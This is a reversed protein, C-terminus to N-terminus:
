TRRKKRPELRRWRIWLEEQGVGAVSRHQTIHRHDPDDKDFTQTAGACEWHKRKPQQRRGTHSHRECMSSSASCMVTTMTHTRAKSEKYARKGGLKGRARCRAAVSTSHPLSPTRRAAVASTSPATPVVGTAESIPSQVPLTRRAKSPPQTVEPSDTATSDSDTCDLTVGARQSKRTRGCDVVDDDETSDNHEPSPDLRVVELRGGFRVKHLFHFAQVSALVIREIMGHWLRQQIHLFKLLSEVHSPDIMCCIGVVLPFVHMVWGRDAYYRLTEVLSSYAHQKRMAAALLQAPSTDSPRCLDVIAIRKHTESVLVWDPQRRGLQDTTASSTPQLVLSTRSMQTEEFVTWKSGLASNLFSTIVDQVQNHASTRAKRFKPCVCAFHALSEPTWEDCYPCTPSRVACIRKLCTQLPYIGTMCRLWVRYVAPTCRRIVKSM